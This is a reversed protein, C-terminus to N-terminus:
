GRREGIDAALRRLQQGAHSPHRPRSVVQRVAGRDDRQLIGAAHQDGPGASWAPCCSRWAAVNLLDVDGVVVGGGTDGPVAAMADLEGPEVGDFQLVVLLDFPPRLKLALTLRSAVM